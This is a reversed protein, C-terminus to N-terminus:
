KAFRELRGVDEISTVTFTSIATESVLLRHVSTVDLRTLNYWLAERLHEKLTTMLFSARGGPDMQPM